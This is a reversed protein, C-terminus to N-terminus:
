IDGDTGYLFGVTEDVSEHLFSLKILETLDINCSEKVVITTNSLYEM